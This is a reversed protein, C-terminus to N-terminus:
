HKRRRSDGKGKGKGKGSSGGMATTTGSTMGGTTPGPAAPVRVATGGSVGGSVGFGSGGYMPTPFLAAPVTPNRVSTVTSPSAAPVSVQAVSAGEAGVSLGEAGLGPIFGADTTEEGNSEQEIQDPTSVAQICSERIQGNVYDCSCTVMGGDPHAFTLASGIVQCIVANSTQVRCYNCTYGGSGDCSCGYTMGECTEFSSQCSDDAVGPAGCIYVNHPNTARCSSQLERGRLSPRNGEGVSDNTLFEEHVFLSNDHGQVAVTASLALACLVYQRFFM